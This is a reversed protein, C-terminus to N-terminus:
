PSTLSARLPHFPGSSSSSSVALSQREARVGLAPIAGALPAASRYDKGVRDLPHHSRTVGVFRHGVHPACRSARMRHSAHPLSNRGRLTSARRQEARQRCAALRFAFSSRFAGLSPSASAFVVWFAPRFASELTRRDTHIIRTGRQRYSKERPFLGAYCSFLSLFSGRRFSASQPGAGRM